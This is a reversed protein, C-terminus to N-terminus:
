KAESLDAEDLQAEPLQLVKEPDQLVDAIVMWQKHESLRVAVWNFFKEIKKRRLEDDPDTVHGMLASFIYLGEEAESAPTELSRLVSEAFAVEDGRANVYHRAWRLVVSRSDTLYREVTKEGETTPQSADRISSEWMAKLDAYAKKMALREGDYKEKLPAREGTWAYPVVGNASVTRAYALGTQFFRTAQAFTTLQERVAARLASRWDSSDLNVPMSTGVNHLPPLSDMGVGANATENTTQM